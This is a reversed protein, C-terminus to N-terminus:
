YCPHVLASFEEEEAEIASLDWEEDIAVIEFERTETM